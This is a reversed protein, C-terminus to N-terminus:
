VTELIMPAQTAAALEFGVKSIQGRTALRYVPRSRNEASSPSRGHPADTTAAKMVNSLMIDSVQDIRPSYISLQLQSTSQGHRSPGRFSRPEASARGVSPCQSTGM